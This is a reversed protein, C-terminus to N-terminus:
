DCFSITLLARLLSLIFESMVQMAAVAVPLNM